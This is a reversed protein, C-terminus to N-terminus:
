DNNKCTLRSPHNAIVTAWVEAFQKDLKDQLYDLFGSLAYLNTEVDQGNEAKLTIYELFNKVQPLDNIISEMESLKDFAESYHPDFM